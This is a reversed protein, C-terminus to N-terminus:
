LLSQWYKPDTKFRVVYKIPLRMLIKDCIIEEPLEAMTKKRGKMTNEDISFSIKESLEAVMKKKRKITNEDM